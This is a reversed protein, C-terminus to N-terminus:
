LPTKAIHERLPVDIWVGLGQPQRPHLEISGRHAEVIRKAISLGIGLGSPEMALGATGRYHPEFAHEFDEAAMGPGEDEVRLCVYDQEIKVGVRVTSRAPSYRLANDLVIVLAQQLRDRDADIYPESDAPLRDSLLLSVGRHAAVVQMQEVAATAIDIMRTAQLALAYDIAGGRAAEMLDQVRAGIEGAVEVIRGLGAKLEELQEPRRLALEAEGRIVTVPTRLEHSLEAFFQRRRAEISLLTEYSQTLARTREGVLHDLKQQLELGRAQSSQVREAMDDLLKGLRSFEDKGSLTSRAGYDGAAFSQTLRALHAIPQDLHKLFYRTAFFAGIIVSVALLNNGWRVRQLAAVLSASANASAAQHRAVADRLLARMDRGSLEDFARLVSRWRLAQPLADSPRETSSVARELATINEAVTEIERREIGQQEPAMREALTRLEAISAHMADLLRQREVPDDDDALMQQAYWVKVRQKNGAIDLYAALMKTADVSREAHYAASRTAWSAFILQVLALLALGIFAAMLRTRIM